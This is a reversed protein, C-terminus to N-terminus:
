TSWEFPGYHGNKGTHDWRIGHDRYDVTRGVACALARAAMHKVNRIWVETIGDAGAIGEVDLRLVDPIEVVRRRGDARYGIRALRPGRWEGVVAAVRAMPGGARGCFIEGLAARQAASADEPLYPTAQWDGAAMRGPIHFALVVTLGDLPVAAFRGHQVSFVALLDCFGATPEATPFSRVPDRPGLLCPCFLDCNCSEVYEGRLSWAV